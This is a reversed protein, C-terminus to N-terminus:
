LYLPMSKMLHMVPKGQGLGIVQYKWFKVKQNFEGRERRAWMPLWFVLSWKQYQIDKQQPRKQQANTATIATRMWVLAGLGVAATSDRHCSIALRNSVAQGADWAPTRLHSICTNSCLAWASARGLNTSAAQRQVTLNKIWWLAKFEKSHQQEADKKWIKNKYFCIAASTQAAVREGLNNVTVKWLLNHHSCINAQVYNMASSLSVSGVHLKRLWYVVSTLKPM